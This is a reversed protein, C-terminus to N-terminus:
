VERREMLMQTGLLLACTFILGITALRWPFPTAPSVAWGCGGYMLDLVSSLKFHWYRLALPLLLDIFLIGTGWTFGNEGSRSVATLFFAMTYVALAGVFLPLIAALLRWTYVYGSLYTLGAFIGVVASLIIVLLECGGLFWTEWVCVRRPRPRTFLFWLTPEKFEGGIVGAGLSLAGFLIILALGGGLVSRGGFAWLGPVRIGPSSKLSYATAGFKAIMALVVACVMSVLILYIVFRSRSDRWCKWFYM